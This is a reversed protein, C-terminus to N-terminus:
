RGGNDLVVLPSDSECEALFSDIEDRGYTKGNMAQYTGGKAEAVIMEGLKAALARRTVTVGEAEARDVRSKRRM